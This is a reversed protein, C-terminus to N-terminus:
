GARPAHSGVVAASGGTFAKELTAKYQDVKIVVPKPSVQNPHEMTVLWRDKLDTSGLADEKYYTAAERHPPQASADDASGKTPIPWSTSVIRCHEQGQEEYLWKVQAIPVTKDPSAKTSRDPGLSLYSCHHALKMVDWELRHENRHFKSIDVIDAWAEQVTDAALIVKTQVANVEFTAQVVMSDLNRDEVDTENLRKGFPSHVFFEVGDGALTFTPVVEGANVILHRVQDVTMGNKELWEKLKDPRSFVRIGSKQKLRYRAEAQLVKADDEVKEETIAGAPVWMENMKIRGEGQYKAAHQLHFFESARRVHDHDLHTFAVADYYDRKGLDKKLETPLDIRKDAKDEDSRMHAYDFLIKKGNDLNILTSDANGLPHFILKPM